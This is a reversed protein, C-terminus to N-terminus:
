KGEEEGFFKILYVSILVVVFTVLVAYGFKALLTNKGIPFLYEIFAKIADNWAFGAVVGLGALVYGVTQRKVEKKVYSGHDKLKLVKEKIKDM